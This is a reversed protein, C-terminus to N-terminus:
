NFLYMMIYARLETAPSVSLSPRDLPRRLMRDARVTTRRCVRVRLKNAAVESSHGGLGSRGGVGCQCQQVREHVRRGDYECTRGGVSGHCDM